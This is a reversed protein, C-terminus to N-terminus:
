RSRANYIQLQKGSHIARLFTGVGFAHCFHVCTYGKMNMNSGAVKVVVKQPFYVPKPLETSGNSHVIYALYRSEINLDLSLDISTDISENELPLIYVSQNIFKQIRLYPLEDHLSSAIRKTSKHFFLDKARTVKPLSIHAEKAIRTLLLLVTHGLKWLSLM